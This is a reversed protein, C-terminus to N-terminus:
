CKGPLQGLGFLLTALAMRKLYPDLGATTQGAQVNCSNVSFFYGNTRQAVPDLVVAVGDSGDHGTDRRLSQVIRRTSDYAVFSVYLFQSDFALRAETRRRPRRDDVPYTMTFDTVVQATQWVPEDLRGDIKLPVETRSIGVRYRNFYNQALDASQGAVGAALLMGGLFLLFRLPM